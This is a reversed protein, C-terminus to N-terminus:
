AEWDPTSEVSEVIQVRPTSPRPEHPGLDWNRCYPAPVGRSGYLLDGVLVPGQQVREVM